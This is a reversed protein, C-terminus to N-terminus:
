GPTNWTRVHNCEDTSSWRYFFGCVFYQFSDYLIFPISNRVDMTTSTRFLGRIDTFVHLQRGIQHATVCTSRGTAVSTHSCTKSLMTSVAVCPPADRTNPEAQKSAKLDWWSASRAPPERSSNSPSSLVWPVRHPAPLPTGILTPLRDMRSVMLAEHASVGIALHPQVPSPM